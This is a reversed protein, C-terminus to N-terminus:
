GVANLGAIDDSTLSRRMVWAVTMVAAQEATTYPTGCASPHALGGAHGVEHIAVTLIDVPVVGTDAYPGHGVTNWNWRATNSSFIVSVTPHNVDLAQLSTGPAQDDGSFRAYKLLLGSAGTPISSVWTVSTYALPSPSVGNWAQVSSNIWSKVTASWPVSGTVSVTSSPWRVNVPFMCYASAPSATAVPTATGLLLVALAWAAIRKM